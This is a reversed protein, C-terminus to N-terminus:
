ELSEEPSGPLDMNNKIANYMKEGWVKRGCTDCVSFGSHNLVKNCYLCKDSM